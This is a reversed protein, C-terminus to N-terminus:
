LARRTPSVVMRAPRQQLAAFFSAGVVYQPERTRHTARPLVGMLTRADPIIQPSWRTRIAPPKEIDDCV